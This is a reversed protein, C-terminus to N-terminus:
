ARADDAELARNVWGALASGVGAEGIRWGPAALVQMGGPARGLGNDGHRGGLFVPLRPLLAALGATNWAFGDAGPPQGEGLDLGQLGDTDKALAALAARWGAPALFVGPGLFLFRAAGVAQLARPLTRLAHSADEIFFLSCPVGLRAELGAFIALIEPRIGGREALLVLGMDGGIGAQGLEEALLFADSRDAPMALVVARRAPAVRWPECGGLRAVADAQLARAFDGFFGEHRLSPFLALVAEPAASHGIRRMTKAPVLQNASTGDAFVLKLIPEGADEVDIAGRFAAVFGIRDLLPGIDPFTDRLDHRPKHYTAQPDARVVTDGFKMAFGNVRKTPSLAWGEVFAGFGPLLLIRDVSAQANGGARATEPLWSEASTIMRQLPLATARDCNGRIQEFQEMAASPELVRVPKMGRQFFALGEGFFIYLEFDGAPPRWDVLIAGFVAHAQAPLDSRPFSTLSVAAAHKKGDFVIAPFELPQDRALWGCVWIVGAADVAVSEIFGRLNAAVPRLQVGMLTAAAAERLTGLRQLVSAGAAAPVVSEAM